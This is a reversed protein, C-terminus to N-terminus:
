FNWAQKRRAAERVISPLQIPEKLLCAFICKGGVGPDRCGRSAVQARAKLRNGVLVIGAINEEVDM